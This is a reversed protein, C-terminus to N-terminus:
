SNSKSKNRLPHRVGSETAEPKAEERKRKRSPFNKADCTKNGPEDQEDSLKIFKGTCARNKHKVYCSDKPGPPQNTEKRVIGYLPRFKSCSGNCQWINKENNHLQHFIHGVSINYGGERNIRHMNKLFADGHSQHNDDQNTVLLYAHIMEHLLNETQVRKLKPKLLPKSLHITFAGPFSECLGTCKTVKPSWAVRVGKETLKGKFFKKDFKEFLDCINSENIKVVKSEKVCDPKKICDSRKILNAHEKETVQDLLSLIEDLSDNWIIDDEDKSIPQKEPELPQSEASEAQPKPSVYNNNERKDNTKSALEANALASNIIELTFPDDELWLNEGKNMSM